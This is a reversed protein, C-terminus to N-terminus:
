LLTFVIETGKYPGGDPAVRNQDFDATTIVAHIAEGAGQLKGLAAADPTYDTAATFVRLLKDNKSTMFLLFYGPGSMPTGHAYAEPIGSLLAHVLSGAARAFATKEPARQERHLDLPDIFRAPEPSLSAGKAGRAFTFVPAPSSPVMANNTPFTFSPVLTTPTTLPTAALLAGLAEDSAEGVFVVDVLAPDGEDGGAGGTSGSGKCVSGAGMVFAIAGLGCALVLRRM